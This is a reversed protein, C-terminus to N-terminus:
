TLLKGFEESNLKVLSSMCKLRNIKYNGDISIVKSCNEDKCASSHYIGSWKKTFISFLKSNQTKINKDLDKVYFACVEQQKEFNKKVKLYNFYFWVESLRKEELQIHKSMQEQCNSHFYNYSNTFAKFSSHKFILDSSVSKILSNEFILENSFSYFKSDLCENYFTREGKSNCFFNLYYITNCSLCKKPTYFCIKGGSNLSYVVSNFKNLKILKVNSCHLCLDYNPSYNSQFNNLIFLDLKELQKFFVFPDFISIAQNRKLYSLLCDKAYSIKVFDNFIQILVESDLHGLSYFIRNFVLYDSLTKFPSLYDMIM